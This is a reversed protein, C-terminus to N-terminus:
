PDKSRKHFPARDFTQGFNGPAGKACGRRAGAIFIMSSELIMCKQPAFGHSTKCHFIKTAGTRVRVDTREDLRERLRTSSWAPGPRDRQKKTKRNRQREIERNRQRETEKDQQRKTERDRQKETDRNRQRM